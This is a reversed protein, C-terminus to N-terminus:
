LHVNELHARWYKKLAFIRSTQEPFKLPYEPLFNFVQKSSYFFSNSLAVGKKNAGGFPKISRPNGRFQFNTELCHRM